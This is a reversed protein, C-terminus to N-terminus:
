SSNPRFLRINKEIKKSKSSFLDNKIPVQTSDSGYFTLSYASNKFLGQQRLQLFNRAKFAHLLEGNQFVVVSNHETRDLSPLDNLSEIFM